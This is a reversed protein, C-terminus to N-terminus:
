IVVGQDNFTMKHKLHQFKGHPKFPGYAELKWGGGELFRCFREIEGSRGPLLLDGVHITLCSNDFKKMLSPQLACVSLGYDEAKHRFRM